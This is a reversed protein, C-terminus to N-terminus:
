GLIFIPFSSIFKPGLKDMQGCVWRDSPDTDKLQSPARSGTRLEPTEEFKSKNVM